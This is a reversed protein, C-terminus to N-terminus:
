STTPSTSPEITTQEQAAHDYYAIQWTDGDKRLHLTARQDIRFPPLNKGKQTARAVFRVSATALAAKGQEFYVTISATTTEPDVRSAETAAEGITLTTLDKAFASRAEPAFRDAVEPFKGDAFSAPDVFGRQYYDNLLDEIAKAEKAAAGTAPRPSGDASVTTTFAVQAIPVVPENGGTLKGVAFTVGAVGLAAILITRRLRARRVSRGSHHFTPQAM